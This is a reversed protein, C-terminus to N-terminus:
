NPLRYARIVDGDPDCGLGPATPVVFNGKKPFLVDGFLSAELKLKFWEVPVDEQAAAALHVTALFGPGYYPSHPRLSVGKARCLQQVELFTTIGGVKTVSPQAFTVAGADIMREFESLGCANEGAGISIGGDTQLRALGRYSDPPYIPEELWLIDLPRFSRAAELAQQFNWPCNVDVMIPTGAGSADRAAKVECFTTEHLKISKFGEALSEVCKEGVVDSDGYKFLSSYGPVLSRRGSGVLDRLPKGAEKAKVDWLAIDLGSLAYQVVGNQGFIHLVQALERMLSPFDTVDRGKVLPAVMSDFASKAARWCSYAFADGWGTIGIDTEVRILLIYIRSWDQGNFGAKEAGHSFPIAVPISELEVIKM